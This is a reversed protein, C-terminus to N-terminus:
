KATILDINRLIMYKSYSSSSWIDSVTIIIQIKKNKLSDKGQHEKALLSITM